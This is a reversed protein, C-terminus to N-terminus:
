KFSYLFSNAHGRAEGARGPKTTSPVFFLFPLKAVANEEEDTYEWLSKDESREQFIQTLGLAYIALPNLNEYIKKFDDDWIKEVFEAQINSENWVATARTFPLKTKDRGICYYLQGVQELTLRTLRKTM